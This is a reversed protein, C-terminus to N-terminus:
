PPVIERDVGAVGLAIPLRSIEGSDCAEYPPRLGETGSEANGDRVLEYRCDLREYEV